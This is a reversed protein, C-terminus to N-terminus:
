SPLKKIPAKLLLETDTGSVDKLAVYGCGILVGIEGVELTGEIDQHRLPDFPVRDGPAGVARINVQDLFSSLDSRVNVVLQAAPDQAPIASDLENIARVILKAKELFFTTTTERGQRFGDTVLDKKLRRVTEEGDRAIEVTLSQWSKSFGARDLVRRWFDDEDKGSDLLWEFIGLQTQSTARRLLDGAFEALGNQGSESEISDRLYQFFSHILAERPSGPALQEIAKLAVTPNAQAVRKVGSFVSRQHEILKEFPVRAFVEQLSAAALALDVGSDSSSSVELRDLLREPDSQRLLRAM